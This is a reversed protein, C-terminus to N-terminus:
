VAQHPAPTTLAHVGISSPISTLHENGVRRPASNHNSQTLVGYDAAGGEVQDWQTEGRGDANACQASQRGDHNSAEDKALNMHRKRVGTMVLTHNLEERLQGSM